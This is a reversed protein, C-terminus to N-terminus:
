ADPRLVQAGRFRGSNDKRGFLLPLLQRLAQQKAGQLLLWLSRYSLLKLRKATPLLVAYSRNIHFVNEIRTVQRNSLGGMWRYYVSPVDLYAVVPKPHHAAFWCWAEYDQTQRLGAAFLPMPIRDARLVVTSTSVFNGARLLDGLLSQSWPLGKRSFTVGELEVTTEKKTVMPQFLLDANTQALVTKVQVMRDDLWQDDGDCFAIHDVSKELLAEVGMNRAIAADGVGHRLLVIQPHDACFRQLVSWSDDTSGNEIAVVWDKPALNNLISTLTEEICDSNNHVPVVVGVVGSFEAAAVEDADFFQESLQPWRGSKVLIGQASNM